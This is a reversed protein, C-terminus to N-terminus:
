YRRLNHLCNGTYYHYSADNPDIFIAKNFIYIADKQRELNFLRVAEYNHDDASKNKLTVTKNEKTTKSPENISTEKYIKPEKKIEPKIYDSPNEGKCLIVAEFFSECIGEVWSESLYDNIFIIWIQRITM